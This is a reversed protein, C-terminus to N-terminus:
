ANIKIIKTLTNTYQKYSINYTITYSDIVNTDIESISNLVQNDSNRVITYNITSESTINNIGNELVIIPNIPEVYPQGLLLNITSQGNIESTIISVLNDGEITFEAGDSTNDKFITYSTKVVFTIPETAVYNYNTDPTTALLTLSGDENKKYVEYVITGVNKENYKKIEEIYENKNKDTTLM